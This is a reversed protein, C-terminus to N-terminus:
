SIELHVNAVSRAGTIEAFNRHIEGCSQILCRIRQPPNEPGKEVLLENQYALQSCIIDWVPM